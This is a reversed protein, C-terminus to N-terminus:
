KDVRVCDLKIDGDYVPHVFYHFCNHFICMGKNICLQALMQQGVAQIRRSISKYILESYDTTSYQVAKRSSYRRTAESIVSPPYTCRVRSDLVSWFTKM